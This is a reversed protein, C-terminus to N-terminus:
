QLWPLWWKTSVSSLYHHCSVNVQVCVVCKKSCVSMVTCLCVTCTHLLDSMLFSFACVYGPGEGMNHETKM